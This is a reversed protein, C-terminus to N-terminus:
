KGICFRAFIADLVAEDVGEGLIEGLRDDVERLDVAVLELAQGAGLAMARQAAVLAEGVKQRQRESAILVGESSEDPGSPTLAAGVIHARLEDIGLGTLASTRIAGRHADERDPALDCRALVAVNARALLEREWADADRTADLVAVQVDVREAVRRHALSVGRRELESPAGERFGPTDWLTLGVGEWVVRSEIVDRTTGPEDSVLAREEGVLRNLLSSKGVNPRGVLAVHVGDQLLRGSRAGHELRQLREVLETVRGAIAKPAMPRLDEDPFDVTAELEARLDVVASRLARVIEGVGGGLRRRAAQLAREGDAGIIEAVAEARTLDMRGNLFARRTFEGPHAVRAGAARAAALLAAANAAGGHGQVEAVDEGTYSNPAALLFYLVEDLRAGSDPHRAWGHYVRRPEVPAPAREILRGLIERAQPGSIRVIAVGGPGAATAVAAITDGGNM